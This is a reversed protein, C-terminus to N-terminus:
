KLLLNKVLCFNCEIKFLFSYESHFLSIFFCYLLGFLLFLSVNVLIWVGFLLCYVNLNLQSITSFLSFSPCVTSVSLCVFLFLIRFHHERFIFALFFSVNLSSRRLNNSSHQSTIFALFNLAILLKLLLKPSIM